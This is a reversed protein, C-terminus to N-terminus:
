TSVRTSSSAMECFQAQEPFSRPTRDGNEIRQQKKQASRHRRSQLHRDWQDQTVATMNCTKCVERIRMEPRDMLDEKVMLVNAAGPFMSTPEPLAEGRLFQEVVSRAPKSVRTEWEDVNSGDLAFLKDLAHERRLAALLKIKIWRIQSKAYQRTANKTREVAATFTDDVTTQSHSDTLAELYPLFEKFGISVWIGSTTDIVRGSDSQEQLFSYLLRAEEVLGAQIMTDVRKDLRPRLSESDASVWFLLTSQLLSDREPAQREREMRRTAQTEYVESAKRGTSLFIELSRQIKHGDNPHWRDAMVPDVNRLERLMEETPASLIPYKQQLEVRSLRDNDNSSDVLSDEFLLSQTYYHTGGVLIPLKGRSRIDQITAVAKKKFLSVTWPEDGLKAVGLLHHPVGQREQESIKNTIIPLGEYIQM